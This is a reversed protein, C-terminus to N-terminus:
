PIFLFRRNYETSEIFAKVMEAQVFDGHFDNLKGLWFEYGTHNTDPADNPSRRLYGFYQMLVFAKNFEATQLDQDEAVGRLVAARRSLDNPNVGLLDILSSRESGSLVSGANLNMKDVIQTATMGSGFAALFEPRQVFALTFAQKNGELQGQWDGIGVQVGESIKQTDPLFQNFTVIPVPLTHAGGITSTGQFDGFATKYIREVLYGTQQFEISLFFAGSVNIRKVEICQADSGCDTINSVWFALGSADPERNLFDVYHQRVYFAPTNLPNVTGNTGDNDNITLTAVSTAGLTAGTPNSLTITFTEAGEAYVDDIIPISVTKQTEGAAFKLSGASTLYDSRSSASGTDNTAFNVTAVSTLDGSRTVNVQLSGINENANFTSAALQITSVTQARPTFTIEAANTLDKPNQEDTHSTIVYAQQGGGGIGVTPFLAVNGSGYRTKIVGNTNLEIEFNVPTTGTCVNGDFECPVGQFRYIVKGPNVVVQYVGADARSSVRLDLDDWLGAIARYGGLKGPSSPVDDADGNDRTPPPAGFYLAGNTSITMSDYTTGFFPFTFGPPFLVEDYQDDANSGVNAGGTSLAVATGTSTTYPDGVSQPIGIPLTVPTGANGVNDFELLSLTGSTHRYPITVNAIQGSGSPMPVLGKLPIVTSGDTFTLQYLAAQGAAGDDGSATWGVNITRGNQSNIHFNTAAGPAVTDNEALSQFSNGVNLRRGTLTKDMLSPRVDGNLLLLNKVQAVTLNPNQAWLLAAAGSVHPTSMSTGTFFTYTDGNADTFAPECPKPLPGPNSCHPTTSLITDGPAALDVSASGFHSFTSAFADSQDTAAVAIVNPADFSSPYHPVLDNDPERTGDDTTNGAAAVFLIGADNLENIAQLFANTFGAGGFSANLVRINAGKTHVPATEWLTRMQKAYNCARIADVTDGFGESDLFKLSMLGVSWNVGAVGKGNNGVAGLIGAVHTAHTETDAGTFLTGNNDVFNYGHVDGTIGSVAGPMPNTWINAALDLHNTDIGQDIVGVVVSTSGTNTNWAQPAGITTMSSQRGAVFHTDNPTVDAHIIYNPEAYLVDPQARLASIATLTDGENVRVVRLGPLLESGDFNEVKMSLLQGSKATLKQVGTRHAAMSESKYRVIVDGPVYAPRRPKKSATTQQVTELKARSPSPFILAAAVLLGVITTSVVSLLVRTKSTSFSNSFHSISM